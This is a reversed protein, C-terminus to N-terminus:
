RESPCLGSNVQLNAIEIWPPKEIRNIQIKVELENRRACPVRHFPGSVGLVIWSNSMCFPFNMWRILNLGARWRTEALM